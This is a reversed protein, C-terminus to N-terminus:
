APQVPQEADLGWCRIYIGRLDEYCGEMVQGDLIYVRKPNFLIMNGIEFRILVGNIEKCLYGEIAPHPVLGSLLDQLEGKVSQGTEDPYQKGFVFYFADQRATAFPHQKGPDPHPPPCPDLGMVIRAGKAMRDIGHWFDSLFTADLNM